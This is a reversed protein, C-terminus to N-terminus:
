APCAPDEKLHALRKEDADFWAKWVEYTLPVFGYARRSQVHGEYTTAVQRTFDGPKFTM